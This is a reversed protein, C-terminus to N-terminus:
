SGDMTRLSEPTVGDMQDAFHCAAVHEGGATALLVPRETACPDPV